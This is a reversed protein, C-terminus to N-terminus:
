KKLIQKALFKIKCKLNNRGYKASIYRYGRSHYLDWFTKRDAPKYASKELHPQRGYTESPRIQVDTNISECLKEGKQTNVLIMSTGDQDDWDPMSREIGWFDGLSIDSPRHLNTFKCEYCSPRLIYGAYFLVKHEQLLPTGYERKGNAFEAEECHVHWGKAKSRCKYKKVKTRRTKEINKIHEDFMLPSPVGHCIVDATFLNEYDKKLYSKLGAVQCPTGTFLVTTGNELDDRVQKFTVQLDSQVYKSVRMNDRAQKNDARAHVARINEDFVVGYIIGGNELVYDSIATFAGGSSSARVIEQKRHKLAIYQQKYLADETMCSSKLPCVNICKNCKICRNYDVSPYSFGESDPQMTIADTPCIAFCASCGCCQSPTEKNFLEPM